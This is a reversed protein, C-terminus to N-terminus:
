SSDWTRSDWGSLRATTEALLGGLIKLRPALEREIEEVPRKANWFSGHIELAPGLRNNGFGKLEIVGHMEDWALATEFDSLALVEGTLPQGNWLTLRARQGAAPISGSRTLWKSLGSETRQYPVITARDFEANHQVLLDSRTEGWHREVYFKLISLAIHWGSRVGAYEDDWDPGTGFGSNVLDLVTYGADRRITIEILGPPGGHRGEYEFVLRNPASAEVIRYAARIGYKKWVWTWLDGNQVKGEADDVFWGAIKKPDAFAQWLRDAPASIRITESTSRGQHKRM